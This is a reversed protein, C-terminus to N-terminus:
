GQRLDPYESRYVQLAADLVPNQASDEPLAPLFLGLPQNFLPHTLAGQEPNPLKQWERLRLYAFIEYPYIMAGSDDFEQVDDPDSSWANRIHHEAMDNCWAAVQQVDRTQWNKLVADYVAMEKAKPYSYQSTDVAPLGRWLTYLHMLFWFHPYVTGKYHRSTHRLDLMPTDLGKTLVDGIVNTREPWGAVIQLALCKAAQAILVDGGRDRNALPESCMVYWYAHHATLAFHQPNYTGKELVEAQFLTEHWVVLREVCSKVSVFDPTGKSYAILRQNPTNWSTEIMPPRANWGIQDSRTQKLLKDTLKQSDQMHFEKANPGTM